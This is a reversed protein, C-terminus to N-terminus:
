ENIAANQQYLQNAADFYPAAQSQGSPSHELLTIGSGIDGAAQLRWSATSAIFQNNPGLNGVTLQSLQLGNLAAAANTFAALGNARLSNRQQTSTAAAAAGLDQMGNGIGNDFQTLESSPLSALDGWFFVDPCDGCPPPCPCPPRCACPSPVEIVYCHWVGLIPFCITYSGGGGGAPMTQVVTQHSTAAGLQQANAMTPLAFVVCTALILAFLTKRM